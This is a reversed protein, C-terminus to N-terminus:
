LRLDERIEVIARDADAPHLRLSQSPHLEAYKFKSTEFFCELAQTDRLGNTMIADLLFQQICTLELGCVCATVLAESM